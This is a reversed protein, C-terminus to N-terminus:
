FTYRRITSQLEELHVPHELLFLASLVKMLIGYMVEHLACYNRYFEYRFICFRTM